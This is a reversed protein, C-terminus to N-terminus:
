RRTRVRSGLFSKTAPLASSRSWRGRFGLADNGLSGTVYGVQNGRSRSAGLVAHSQLTETGCGRETRCRPPSSQCHVLDRMPQQCLEVITDVEDNWPPRNPVRCVHHGCRSQHREKRAPCPLHQEPHLPPYAAVPDGQPPGNPEAAPQQSHASRPGALDISDRVTGACHPRTPLGPLRKRGRVDGQRPQLAMSETRDCHISYEFPARSKQKQSAPPVRHHGERGCHGCRHPKARGPDGNRPM